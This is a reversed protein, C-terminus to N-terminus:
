SAKPLIEKHWISNPLQALISAIEASIKAFRIEIDQFKKKEKPMRLSIVGLIQKHVLIPLLIMSNFDITKSLEAIFAVNMDNEINEIFLPRKTRLVYRVEPYKSLNIKLGKVDEDDSSALVFGEADDESDAKIVSVRVADTVLALMKILQFYSKHNDASLAASRLMLETLQLFYHTQRLEKDQITQFDLTKQKAQALLSVRSLTDVFSVPKVLFDSAGIKLCHEVNAKHNHSSLVIVRSGTEGLSNKDQLFKLCQQAPFNQFMLDILIFDPRWQLITNPAHIGDSLVRVEFGSDKLYRGLRNANTIEHDAILIKFNELKPAM